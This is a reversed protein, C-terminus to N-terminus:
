MVNGIPDITVTLGLRELETKVYAARKQEHTSQAPIETVAIWEQVQRDFREDIFALAQKVDAREVLAPSFATPYGAQQDIATTTMLALGVSALGLATRSM